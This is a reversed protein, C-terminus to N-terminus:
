VIKRGLGPSNQEDDEPDTAFLTMSTVALHGTPTVQTKQTNILLSHVPYPSRNLTFYLCSECNAFSCSLPLERNPKQITIILIYGAFYYCTSVQGLRRAKPM